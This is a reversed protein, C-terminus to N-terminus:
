PKNPAPAAKAEAVTSRNAGTAPVMVLRSADFGNATATSKIQTLVDPSMTPTSALIWLEKRNPTGVLAWTYAPDVALVWYKHTFIFFPWATVQLSGNWTKTKTRANLNRVQSTGDKLICASVIQLNFPKDGEAYLVTADSVCKKESADPYRAIEYWPIEFKTQDLHPIAAPTQAAAIGCSALVAIWGAKVVAHSTM